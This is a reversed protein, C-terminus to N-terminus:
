ERALQKLKAVFEESTEHHLKYSLISDVNYAAYKNLFDDSLFKEPVAKDPPLSEILSATLAMQQMLEEPQMAYINPIPLNLAAYAEAMYINLQAQLSRDKAAERFIQAYKSDNAAAALAVLNALPYNRLYEAMADEKEQGELGRLHNVYKTEKSKGSGIYEKQYKQIAYFAESYLRLHEATMNVPPKEAIRGSILVNLAASSSKVEPLAWKTAQAKQRVKTTDELKASEERGLDGQKETGLLHLKLMLFGCFVMLAGSLLALAICLKKAM